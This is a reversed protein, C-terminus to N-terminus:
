AVALTASSTPIPTPSSCRFYREKPVAPVSVVIPEARLDTWLISYPTDSNPTVIATDKYTAVHTLNKIQNFPAKFQSGKADVAFENMVAYNMVLPLGYIFGEEAIAKAEFDN